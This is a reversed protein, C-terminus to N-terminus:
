KNVNNKQMGEILLNLQESSLIRIPKLNTQSKIMVYGKSLWLSSILNRNKRAINIIKRNIETYSNSFTIEKGRSCNTNDLEFINEALIPISRNNTDKQRNKVFNLIKLKKNVDFFELYTIPSQENRPKSKAFRKIADRNLDISSWDSIAELVQKEDLESPINYIVLQNELNIQQLANIEHSNEHNETSKSKSNELVKIRDKLTELELNTEKLGNKVSEMGEHLSKIETKVDKISKNISKIENGNSELTKKMEFMMSRIEKLMTNNDDSDKGMESSKQKINPQQAATYNIPSQQQSQKQSDLRTQAKPQLNKYM